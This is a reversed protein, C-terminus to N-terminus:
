VLSFSRKIVSPVIDLNMPPSTAKATQTNVKPQSGELRTNLLGVEGDPPVEAGAGAGVGVGALRKRGDLEGLDGDSLRDRGDYGRRGRHAQSIRPRTLIEPERGGAVAAQGHLQSVPRFCLWWAAEPECPTSM